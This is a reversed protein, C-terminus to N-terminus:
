LSAAPYTQTKSERTEPSESRDANPDTEEDRVHDSQREHRAFPTSRSFFPKFPRWSPGPRCVRTARLAQGGNVAGGVGASGQGAV